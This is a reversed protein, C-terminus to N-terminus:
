FWLSTRQSGDDYTRQFGPPEWSWGFAVSNWERGGPPDVSCATEMRWWGVRVYAALALAILVVVFGLVAFRKM